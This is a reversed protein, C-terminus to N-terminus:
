APPRLFRPPIGWAAALRAKFAAQFAEFASGARNAAVPDPGPRAAPQAAVAPGECCVRMLTCPRVRQACEEAFDTVVLRDHYSLWDWDDAIVTSFPTVIRTVCRIHHPTLYVLRSAASSGLLDVARETFPKLLASSHIVFAVREGSEVLVKAFGLAASTKGSQPAGSITLVQLM